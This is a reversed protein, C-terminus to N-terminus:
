RNRPLHHGSDRKILISGVIASLVLAASISSFAYSLGISDMLSGSVMSGILVGASMSMNFVGMVSGQGYYRGEEAAIAALTPWVMAEGFGIIACLGILQFFTTSFPVLYLIISIIISGALLFTVKNYRDAMRGFPVQLTASVLTRTTIVFGVQTGTAGILQTMLIPLFAMMPVMVMMTAMRPLLMGVIRSNHLMRWFTTLKPAELRQEGGAIRSPLLWLVLALSTATLATMAYFASNMGMLDLFIGGIVPGGGIGAFIAINLIGMYKGEEGRPSLDGMYAMAIPLIMASGVGHVLRILILHDVSTALTYAFGALAYILLGIVLFRKRGHRDSLPGVIPQMAGQSISFAAVMLGLSIGTAGLDVAFIPIIPAIIGVGFLAIAISLLLVLLIRTNM